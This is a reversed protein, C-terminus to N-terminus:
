ARRNALSFIRIDSVIEVFLSSLVDPNSYCSIRFNYRSIILWPKSVAL